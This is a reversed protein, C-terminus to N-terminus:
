AQRAWRIAEPISARKGYMLMGVRYIRSAVYMIVLVTGFGIVLSLAIQWFPPTQTVIRVVMAVPATFPIISVWFSFPSDPSRSVPLFLYFSVVLILIIPMALQGGEQATTVMSGVLAYLTAYMFYGLLFFLGFYFFHSLPVGPISASVGRAALVGVGYLAFVSFALGWIALQTLAVLSVGVLKGMMLTFPKVSSFLIEAIRTEKEEVVSGLIIQGYMLIALYMVLGMGFVLAFRGGANREQGAASISVGELNVPKFLEQRTKNDVKAEILRQERTARNLASQLARSSIIDGPNNNFFEAKGHSLFDPPLILYGDLERARMRQELNARIEDLSQNGASVEELRFTGYGRRPLTRLQNTNDSQSDPDPSDNDLSQKLQSYMEGTQDVVALRLPPTEISFIIAPVIGFLSMVAPLLITSVIFMKARVRQIYERKVVALLKTM